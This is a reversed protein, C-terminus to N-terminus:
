KIYKCYNLGLGAAKEFVFDMSFHVASKLSTEYEFYNKPLYLSM